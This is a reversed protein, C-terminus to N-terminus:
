RLVERISEWLINFANSLRQGKALSYPTYVITVPVERWPLEHRKIENLIQSAHGMRNQTIRIQGAANASFARLGNHADTIKLRSSMRLFFVALKLVNKKMAPM